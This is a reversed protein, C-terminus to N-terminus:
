YAEAVARHQALSFMLTVNVNIGEGILAQIAPIGAPTAPVKIMVNPRNLASFLHRAEAITGETDHALAPRAELSVYGDAGETREYVPRLVDAAQKIDDMVLAEYIEQADKGADVLEHLTEDYDTSGAIAKEFITPNSTVGALGDAVLEQLEGSTIFSRRIYDLWVAQGLEALESLKNM